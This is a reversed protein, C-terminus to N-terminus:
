PTNSLTFDWGDEVAVSTKFPAATSLAVVPRVAKASKPLMVVTTVKTEWGPRAVEPAVALNEKAARRAATEASIAHAAAIQHLPVAEAISAVQPAPAAPESPLAAVAAAAPMTDQAALAPSPAATSVPTPTPSPSPKTMEATVDAPPTATLAAEGTTAVPSANGAAGSTAAVAALLHDQANAADKHKSHHLTEDNLLPTDAQAIRVPAPDEVRGARRREVPEDDYCGAICVIENNESSTGAIEAASTVELKRQSKAANVAATKSIKYVIRDSSPRCGAECIVLYDEPHKAALPHEKVTAESEELLGTGGIYLEGDDNMEDERGKSAGARRKSAPAGTNAPRESSAQALIARVEASADRVRRMPTDVAASQHVQDQLSGTVIAPAPAPKILWRAADGLPAYRAAVMLAVIAAFQLIGRM